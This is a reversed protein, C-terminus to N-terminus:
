INEYKNVLKYFTSRKLNMSDMCKKATIEGVRWKEYYMKWDAPYEACPRGTPRGTKASVKKGNVVPMVAIGQQQRSRINQLEKEAVYSLIQLVLDAIFRKDLNDTSQRTDLMPMDLVVIDVGLVNIIFNWQERIEKYNRGLRDLSIIVLLDGQRMLPATEPTGVLANYERRSFTSGSIKDIRINREAIGFEKLQELQRLENQDKTSIRAYGWTEM